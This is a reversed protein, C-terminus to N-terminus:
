ISWVQVTSYWIPLPLWRFDSSIHQLYLIIDALLKQHISVSFAQPNEFIKSKGLAFEEQQLKFGSSKIDSYM